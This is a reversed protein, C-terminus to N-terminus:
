GTDKQKHTFAGCFFRKWNSLFTKSYNKLKYNLAKIVQFFREPALMFIATILERANELTLIPVKNQNSYESDKYIDRMVPSLQEFDVSFEKRIRLLFLHILFVFLLHRYLGYYSRGEYHDLGLSSKGEKFCQEIPWRRNSLERLKEIPTDEPMNSIAYRIDGNNVKRIYLWVWDNPKGERIDLVRHAMEKGVVPGKSGLSFTTSQWQEENDEMIEVVKKPADSSKEKTPKRGKGSWQPLEFTPENIYFTDDSHVDAMYYLGQPISDLFSRDHGFAGDVGVYNGKFLGSNYVSNLMNSAIENKTLFSLREPIGCKEWRTKYEDTFWCKPIYLESQVLGYGKQGSYGLMVTAQCSATKGLVGCYQRAVGASDKGYKPIDCGDITFMGDEDSIVDALKQQYLRLMQTEDWPADKLFAQMVRTQSVDGYREVINEVNKRPLDSLLGKAYMGAHDRQPKNAFCEDYESMYDHLKQPLQAVSEENIGAEALLTPSWDPVQLMMKVEEWHDPQPIRKLFPSLGKIFSKNLEYLFVKKKRGHYEFACGVKSFGKTEGILKWNSALYCTGLYRESDVFTEVLHPKYGYLKEWDEPLRRLCLGLIHSALNQVKVWPLILYRHNAVVYKLNQKRGENTWGIFADRVGIHLTARNFSLAALPVEGNFILYKISQGIMKGFGLYHYERIMEDWLPEFETKNVIVTTLQGLEKVNGIVPSKILRM